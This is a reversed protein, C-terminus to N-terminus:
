HHNDPCTSGVADCAHTHIHFANKRIAVNGSLGSINIRCGGNGHVHKGDQTYTEFDSDFKGSLADTHVTFGSQEPLELILDGSMSDVNITMPENGLILHCNASMADFDLHNLAGSFNVDGSATEVDLDMVTCNEFNCVGSAADIDVNVLFLDRVEISAAAADITLEDCQWDTPVIILLEKSIDTTHIGIHEKWFEISLKGDSSNCRMQYKDQTMKPEMVTIKDTYEDPIIKISGAAWEIKLEQISSADVTTSVSDGESALPIQHMSTGIEWHDAMFLKAGLGVGLIGLLIVLALSHLIIRIIANRKM